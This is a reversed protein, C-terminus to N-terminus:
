CPLELLEKPTKTIVECGDKTVIVSDEIRLGIQGPLYVGPEVTVVMNEEFVTTSVKNAVPEEHIELGVGHGLGHTFFDGYGDDTISQRCITDLEQGTIGEKVAAVGKKQARLVIDYLKKQLDSAPGMVITRTIDSHYGNYVAGFDFTVFDGKEIVKDSAVGHPMSSRKGSAVITNFSPEKSGLRLMEMELLLCAEKETMGPKLQTLLYAFAQDAITAAHRMDDLEDERKSSRLTELTVSHFTAELLSEKMKTYTDYNMFNGEFAYQHASNNTLGVIDQITSWVTSQYQIVQFGECQQHAQETYRADVIMNAKQPTIFAVATTGTFGAFYRLNIPNILIIGDYNHSSLFSQLRELGNM